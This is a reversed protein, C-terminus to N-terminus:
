VQLQVAAGYVLQGAAQVPTREAAASQRFGGAVSSSFLASLGDINSDSTGASRKEVADLREDLRLMQEFADRQLRKLAQIHECTVRCLLSSRM